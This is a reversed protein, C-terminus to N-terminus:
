RGIEEFSGASGLAVWTEVDLGHFLMALASGKLLKTRSRQSRWIVTTLFVATLIVILVPVTICAWRVHVFSEYPRGIGSHPVAGIFNRMAVTISAAFDSMLMEIGDPYEHYIWYSATIIDADFFTEGM